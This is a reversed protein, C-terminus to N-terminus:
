VIGESRLRDFGRRTLDVLEEQLAPDPRKFNFCSKGQMRKKLDDSVADLLDPYMYVPFLHVSVYNKKIEVSGFFLQKKWKESYPTDLSYAEPTDATVLLDSAHPTLAQKLEAFVAPSQANENAM